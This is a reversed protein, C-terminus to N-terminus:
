PEFERVAGPFNRPWKEIIKSINGQLPGACSYVYNPSRGGLAAIQSKLRALEDDQLATPDLFKYSFGGSRFCFM